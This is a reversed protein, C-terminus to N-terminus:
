LGSTKYEYRRKDLLNQASLSLRMKGNFKWVASADVLIINDTNGEPFRTLLHEAGVTFQLNDDPIVTVHLNQNFSHHVNCIGAIKLESLRYSAEYNLSLWRLISGRFYPKFDAIFQEYRNLVSDRMSAASSISANFDCGVVMKSHALGKSVGGHFHWTDNDSIRDAFTSIIIDDIFLQNSM